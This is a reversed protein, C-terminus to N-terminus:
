KLCKLANFEGNELPRGLDFVIYRYEGDVASYLGIDSAHVVTEMDSDATVLDIAKGISEWSTSTRQVPGCAKYNGSRTQWVVVHAHFNNFWTGNFSKALMIGETEIEGRVGGSKNPCCAPQGDITCSHTGSPCQAMAPITTFCIALIFIIALVKKM